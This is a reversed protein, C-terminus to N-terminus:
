ITHKYKISHFLQDTVEKEYEKPNAYLMFTSLYCILGERFLFEEIKRVIDSRKLKDEIYWVYPVIEDTAPNKTFFKIVRM